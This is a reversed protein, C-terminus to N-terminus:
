NTAASYPLSLLRCRPRATALSCNEAENNKLERAWQIATKQSHDQEDPDVGSEILVSISETANACAAWMLATRGDKSKLNKDAGKKLLLRVANPFNAAATWMLPTRGHNDPADFNKSYEVIKKLGFHHSETFSDYEQQSLPGGDLYTKEDVPWQHWAQAAITLASGREGIVDASAGSELLTTVNGAQSALLAFHLATNGNKDAVDIDDTRKLFWAMMGPIQNGVSIHLPLIREKHTAQNPNAGAKELIELCKQFSEVDDPPSRFYRREVFDALYHFANQGDTDLSTADAGLGILTELSDNLARSAAMMLATAGSVPDASNPDAGLEVLKKLLDPNHASLFIPLTGHENGINVDPKLELLASVVGEEPDILSLLEFLATQGDGDKQNPDAGAKLLAQVIEVKRSIDDKSVSSFPDAEYPLEVGVAINLLPIGLVKANSDLGNALEIKLLSLNGSRIAEYARKAIPPIEDQANCSNSFFYFIVLLALLPSQPRPVKNRNNLVPM